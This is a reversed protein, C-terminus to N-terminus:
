GHIDFRNKEFNSIKLNPCHNEEFSIIHTMKQTGSWEM